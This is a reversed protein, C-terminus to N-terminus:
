ENQEILFAETILAEPMRPDVDTMVFGRAFPPIPLGWTLLPRM